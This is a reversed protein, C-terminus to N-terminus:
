FPERLNLLNILWEEGTRRTSVYARIDGFTIKKLGKKRRFSNRVVNCFLAKFFFLSVKKLFDDADSYTSAAIQLTHKCFRFFQEIHTREFWCRRLTKAKINMDTTYIVSVKKSGNLRFFLLVVTCNRCKYIAKKRMVYPEADLGHLKYYEAEAPIYQNDIYENLKLCLNDIEFKHSKVPVCIPVIGLETAYVLLDPNSYGSDVSLHFQGFTLHNEKKIKEVMCHMDHLIFSGIEADTHGKTSIYFSLPYFMEDITIGGLTIKYGYEGRKTQGSFFKDFFENKPEKLWIKFISADIIFTPRQRSWTSAGKTGIDILKETIYHVSLESSITCLERYSLSNYISYLRSSKKQYAKLVQKLNNHGYFSAFCMLLIVKEIKAKDKKSVNAALVPEIIRMSADELGKM